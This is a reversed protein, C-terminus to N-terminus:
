DAAAPPRFGLPRPAPQSGSRKQRKFAAHMMAKDDRQYNVLEFEAAGFENLYGWETEYRWDWYESQLRDVEPDDLQRAIGGGAPRIKAARDYESLYEDRKPWDDRLPGAFSWRFVLYEWEAM